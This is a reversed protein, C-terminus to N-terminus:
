SYSESVYELFAFLVDVHPRYSFQSMIISNILLFKRDLTLDSSIKALASLKQGAKKCLSNIRLDFSLKKDIFTGLKIKNNGSTIETANLNLKDPEDHNSILMYFCKRPNTTM